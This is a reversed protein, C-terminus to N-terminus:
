NTPVTTNPAHRRTGDCAVGDDPSVTGNMVGFRNGTGDGPGVHIPGSGDTPGAGYGGRQGAVGNANGVGNGNANGRTGNAGFRNGTGDQPGVHIPGSGDLPGAGPGTGVCTGDCNPNEVDPVPAQIQTTDAVDAARDQVTSATAVSVPILLGALVVGTTFLKRIM